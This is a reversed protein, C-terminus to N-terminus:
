APRPLGTLVATALLILLAFFLEGGAVIRLRALDGGGLRPRVVRWNIFGGGMAAAVFLLKLLLARGYTTAWLQSVADLHMLANIVGSAAVVGAAALALPSFADVAEAQVRAGDPATGLLPLVRTMLIALTGLWAGAAAVHLTDNAVVLWAVGDAGAAHGSLAPVAALGAVAVAALLAPARDRGRVAWALAAGLLTILFAQLVWARGWATDNLMITLLPTSWANDTGHMAVSQLHLRLVAAVGLLAGAGAAIGWARRAVMAALPSDLRLRPLLLMRLSVAGLLLTLAVFHLWRALVEAPGAGSSTVEGHHAHEDAPVTVATDPAPQPAAAAASDQALTFTYSGELVHGDAGATRWRVTFEGAGRLPPLAVTIERDSGPVFSVAGVPVVSGDPALLQVRTYGAEIHASFVLRLADPPATVTSGAAPTASALRIHASAPTACVAWAALTLLAATCFRSLQKPIRM